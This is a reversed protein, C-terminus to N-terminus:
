FYCVAKQSQISFESDAKLVIFVQGPNLEALRKAEDRAEICNTHRTSHLFETPEGHGPSWVLWFCSEKENFQVDVNSPNKFIWNM